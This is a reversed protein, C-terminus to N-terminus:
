RAHLEGSRVRPVDRRVRLEETDSFSPLPPVWRTVTPTFSLHIPDRGVVTWTVSEGLEIVGMAAAPEGGTTFSETLSQQTLHTIGGVTTVSNEHVHGTLVVVPVRALQLAARMRHATPYTSIEPNHKFYYNEHFIRGSFPVHTIVLCPRDANQLTRALWVTDEEAPAFGSPRTESRYIRSDVRWVVLRWGGVDITEHRLQMGLLAENEAVTLQDLDHNGNIHICPKPLQGFMAAVEAMNHRDTAHDVDNIRDGLDLVHSVNANAVFQGFERMLTPATDGRKTFVSPGYHVDTVVALRAVTGNMSRDM